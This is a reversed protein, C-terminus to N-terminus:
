AVNCSSLGSAMELLIGAAGATLGWGQQSKSMTGAQDVAPWSPSTLSFRDSAASAVFPVLANAERAGTGLATPPDATTHGPGVQTREPSLPIFDSEMLRLSVHRDWRPLCQTASQWPAWPRGLSAAETGLLSAQPLQSRSWGYREALM